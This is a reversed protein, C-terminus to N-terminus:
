RRQTILKTFTKKAKLNSLKRGRIMMRKMSLIALQRQRVEQRTRRGGEEGEEVLVVDQEFELLDLVVVQDRRKRGYEGEYNDEDDYDEEEEELEEEDMDEEQQVKKGRGRGRRKKNKKKDSM